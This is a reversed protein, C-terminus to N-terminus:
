KKARNAEYKALVKQLLEEVKAHDGGSEIIEDLQQAYNTPAAVVHLTPLAKAEEEVISAVVSPTVVPMSMIKHSKDATAGADIATAHDGSIMAEEFKVRSALIKTAADKKQLNFMDRVDDPLESYFYGRWDSVSKLAQAVALFRAPSIAIAARLVDRIMEPRRALEETQHFVTKVVAEYVGRLIAPVKFGFRKETFGSLADDGQLATEEWEPLKRTFFRSLYRSAPGLVYGIGVMGLLAPWGYSVNSDWGVAGTQSQALLEVPFMSFVWAVLLVVFNM